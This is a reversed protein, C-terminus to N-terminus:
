KKVDFKEFWYENYWENKTRNYESVDSWWELNIKNQVNDTDFRKAKVFSLIEKKNNNQQETDM